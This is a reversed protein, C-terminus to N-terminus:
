RSQARGSLIDRGVRVTVRSPPTLFLLYLQVKSARHMALFREHGV